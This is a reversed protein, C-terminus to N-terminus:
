TEWYFQCPNLPGPNPYLWSGWYSQPVNRFKNKVVCYGLVQSSIGMAWFQEQAIKLIEKMIENQAKLDPTVLLKDYLEMQKKAPAPPEEGAKGGSTYWEVWRLAYQSETSYPFYWRPELIVDMGGDGGWIGVDLENADKRAYFLSRDMPKITTRVGVDKWYKAVMEMTDSTWFATTFEIIVGLPKGDPRLRFGEADKNPLIGDLIKKAKAPDYETYQKALTENYLPSEKVPALQWPEGLGVYVIDIIEKRNIAHSLAIRFDKNQYLKRQEPDKHTLNLSITITNMSSPKVDVFRIDAKKMNDMFLAKNQAAAIHRDQFSIEGALAMMVIAQADGAQTYVQKDIYPLQNGEPDVKWYYANREGVWQPADGMKSTYHWAWVVPAAPNLRPDVWGSYGQFWKEVKAEKMKAELFSADATPKFFQKRYNKPQFLTTPTAVRQLFLGYPQTFAFKVTYDDIKSIVVPEGATTLWKPFTPTLEKDSIEDYFFTVDDATFPTGDSWKMGKRLYFVFTKGGDQVEWKKAVNPIVETWEVNWHLMLDYENCRYPWAGDAPGLFGLRYEGGYKGIKEIPKIVLPEEPLRQEVPPLKGAKVLETLMPAEKYKSVPKTPEAPKPTATPVAVAPKAPTPTAKPVCAALVAGMASVASLKLFERRTLKSM